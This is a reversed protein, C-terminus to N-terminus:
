PGLNKFILLISMKGSLDSSILIGEPSKQPMYYRFTKQFHIQGMDALIIAKKKITFTFLSPWAIWHFWDIMWCILLAFLDNM